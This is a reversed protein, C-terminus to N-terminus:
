EGQEKDMLSSIEPDEKGKNWACLSMASGGYNSNSQIGQFPAEEREKQKYNYVLDM